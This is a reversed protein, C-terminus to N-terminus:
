KFYKIITRENYGLTELIYEVVKAAHIDASAEGTM